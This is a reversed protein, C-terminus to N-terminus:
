PLLSLQRNLQLLKLLPSDAPVTGVTRRNGQRERITTRTLSMDVNVQVSYANSVKMVRPRWSPHSDHRAQSLENTGQHQPARTLSQRGRPRGPVM